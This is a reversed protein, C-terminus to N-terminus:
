EKDIFSYRKERERFARTGGELIDCIHEKIGRQYLVGDENPSFFTNEIGGSVYEFRYQKNDRDQTQGDQNAVIIEESDAGVVVNPNHTVIIIQRSEKKDKLFMVLDQYISRNDLDDEPQDILIPYESNSLEILLKLIVLNKKGPSMVDINDRQYTISYNLYYYDDFIINSLQKLNGGQNLTINNSLLENFMKKINNTHTPKSYKFRFVDEENVMDNFFRKLTPKNIKNQFITQNFIKEKLKVQIDITLEDNVNTYQKLENAIDQYLTHIKQYSNFVATKRTAIEDQTNKLEDLHAKILLLKGEEKELLNTKSKLEKAQSTKESLPTLEKKIEDLDTKKIKLDDSIKKSITNKANDLAELTSDLFAFQSEFQEKIEINLLDNKTSEKEIQINSLGEYAVNNFEIVSSKDRSLHDIKELLIKQKEMLEEYLAQEEENLGQNKLQKIEKELQKIYNEVGVKDGIEKIEDQKQKEEDIETFLRFLESNLYRLETNLLTEFEEFKTKADPTQLIIEQIFLNLKLRNKISANTLEDIYSQSIYVIKRNSSKTGSLTDVEGDQWVVEFDFDENSEHNYKIIRPNRSKVEHTDIAKAIHNLLLSKGTSKGGIITNLNQNLKIPSPQFLNLTTNDIFRVKEIINYPTKSVPANDSILVREDFVYLLQRIGEFTPNSKIWTFSNGIKMNTNTPDDSFHHADSFHLLKNNVGNEKLKRRGTNYQEITHSSAFVFHANNIIEKKDGGASEWRMSEWESRGIATFFLPNGNNTFSTNQLLEQIKKIEFTLNNFGLVMNSVGRVKDPPSSSAYMQGFEELDSKSTIAGEWENQDDFKKKVVLLNIFKREITNIDLKSQDAFVIHYNIKNLDKNGGFISLRYEIVPLLLDINALRGSNKYSLVKKYGDIFLYDNIGLVKFQPPLNELDTIYKEWVEETDGGYSQVNSFPTHVHLDCKIWNSGNEYINYM